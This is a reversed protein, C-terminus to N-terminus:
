ADWRRSRKHCWRTLHGLSLKPKYLDKHSRALMVYIEPLLHREIRICSAPATHLFWLFYWIDNSMTEIQPILHMKCTKKGWSAKTQNQLAKNTSDVVMRPKSSSSSRIFTVKCQRCQRLLVDRSFVDVRPLFNRSIPDESVRLGGFLKLWPKSM